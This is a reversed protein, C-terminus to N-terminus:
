RRCVKFGNPISIAKYGIPLLGGVQRATLGCNQYEPWGGSRITKIARKKEIDHRLAERQEATLKITAKM